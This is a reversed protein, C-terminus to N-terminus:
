FPWFGTSGSPISQFGQPLWVVPQVWYNNITMDAHFTIYEHDAMKLNMTRKFRALKFERHCAGCPIGFM